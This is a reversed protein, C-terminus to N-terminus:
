EFIKTEVDRYLNIERSYCLKMKLQHYKSIKGIKDDFDFKEERSKYNKM